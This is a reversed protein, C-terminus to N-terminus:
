FGLGWVARVSASTSGQFPGEFSNEFSRSRVFGQLVGFLAGELLGLGRSYQSESNLHPVQRDFHDFLM